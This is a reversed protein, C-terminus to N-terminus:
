FTQSDGLTVIEVTDPWPSTNRFGNEDTRYTFVVDGAGLQGEHNAPYLFGISPDAQSVTGAAVLDDWEIRQKAGEPLLGPSARLTAEGIILAVGVSACLLALNALFKKSGDTM